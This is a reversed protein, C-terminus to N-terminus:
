LRMSVNTTSILINSAANKQFLHAMKASKKILYIKVNEMRGYNILMLARAYFNMLWYDIPTKIFSCISPTELDLCSHLFLFSSIAMFFHSCSDYSRHNQHRRYYYSYDRAFCFKVFEGIMTDNPCIWWSRSLVTALEM